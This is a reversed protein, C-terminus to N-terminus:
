MGKRVTMGQTNWTITHPTYVRKMVKGCECKVGRKELSQYDAMSCAVDKVKGCECEFQYLAM